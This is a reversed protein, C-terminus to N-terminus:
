VISLRPQTANERPSDSLTQWASDSAAQGPAGRWDLEAASAFTLEPEPEARSWRMSALQHPPAPEAEYEIRIVDGTQKSRLTLQAGNPGLPFEASDPSLGPTHGCRAPQRRAHRRGKLLLYFLGAGSEYL